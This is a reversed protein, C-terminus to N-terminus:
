PDEKHDPRRASAGPANRKPYSTPASGNLRRACTATAWAKPPAIPKPRSRPRPPTTAPNARPMISASAAKPLASAATQTIRLEGIAQYGYVANIREVIERSRMQLIQANAGNTLLM